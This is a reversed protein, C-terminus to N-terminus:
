LVLPLGFHDLVTVLKAGITKMAEQKEFSTRIRSEYDPDSPQFKNMPGSGM